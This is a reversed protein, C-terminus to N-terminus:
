KCTISFEMCSSMAVIPRCCRMCSSTVKNVIYRDLIFEGSVFSGILVLTLVKDERVLSIRM